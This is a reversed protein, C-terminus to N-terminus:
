ARDSVHAEEFTAMGALTDAAAILIPVAVLAGSGEGLRMGLEVLPQLGLAELAVGHAPEASRHGAQWWARAGPALQEAVLAAAGSVVGDLLV